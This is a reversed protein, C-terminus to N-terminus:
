TATVAVATPATPATQATRRHIIEDLILLFILFFLSFHLVANSVKSFSRFAKSTLIQNVKERM